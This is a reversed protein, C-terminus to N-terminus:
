AYCSTRPDPNRSVGLNVVALDRLIDFEAGPQIPIRREERADLHATEGLDAGSGQQLFAGFRCM